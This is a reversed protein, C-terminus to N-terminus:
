HGVPEPWSDPHVSDLPPAHFLEPAFGPLRGPPLIWLEVPGLDEVDDPPSREGGGADTHTAEPCAECPAPADNEESGVGSEGSEGCTTEALEFMMNWPVVVPSGLLAAARAGVEPGKQRYGWECNPDNDYVGIGEAMMWWNLPYMALVVVWVAVWKLDIKM